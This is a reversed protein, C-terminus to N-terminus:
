LFPIKYTIEVVQIKENWINTPTIWIPSHTESLNKKQQKRFFKNFVNSNKTRKGTSEITSSYANKCM